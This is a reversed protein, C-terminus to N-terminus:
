EGRIAMYVSATAGAIGFLMFVVMIIVHIIYSCRSIKKKNITIYFYIPLVIVAITGRINGVFSTVMEFNPIAIALVLIFVTVMVRCFVFWLTKFHKIKHFRSVSPYLGGEIAEMSVFVWAPFVLFMSLGIFVNMILSVISFQFSSLVSGTTAMGFTAAGIVALAIKVVTNVAIASTTLPIYKEPNKMTAELGPIALHFNYSNLVVGYGVFFDVYSFTPNVNSFSWQQEKSVLTVVAITFGITYLILGFFGFWTLVSMRKIFFLPFAMTIWIVMWIRIDMQFVDKTLDVAVQACFILTYVDSLINTSIICNMIFGGKYKITKVGLEHYSTYVRKKSGDKSSVQYQVKHVLIATYWVLAAILVILAIFPLGCRAVFLPIAFVSLSTIYSLLNFFFIVDPTLRDISAINPLSLTKSLEITREYAVSHAYASFGLYNNSQAMSQAFGFVSETFGRRRRKPKVTINVFNGSSVKHLNGNYTQIQQQNSLLLSAENVAVSVSMSNMHSPTRGRVYNSHPDDGDSDPEPENDTSVDSVDDAILEEKDTM